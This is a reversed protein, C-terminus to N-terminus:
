TSGSAIRHRAIILLNAALVSSWVYAKFSTFGSWTCRTMGFCRKLFSIFSEIGARFHRLQKYVWASRVMDTVALGCRKTFAMDEVGLAKIAALNERSAFAGDAAAQRPAAGYLAIVREVMAVALTTDAPNGEQIVCDLVVGSRGVSLAVKHGYEPTASGKMIIDTHPEFISVIKETAPVSEGDFVRRRTQDVVREGHEIVESLRRAARRVQRMVDPSGQRRGLRLAIRRADILMEETTQVLIRYARVRDERRRAHRIELWRRKACRRHDTFTFGFRRAGRLERSLVRVVDWLLTSDAPPHINSLTTTCDVRIKEGREIKENKAVGVLARNMAELTGPSVRKINEQLTSRSVPADFAGFGCFARYCRSDALHFALEEYSFGNMQKIILARIVQDASLGPRGVQADRGTLLDRQVQELVDPIQDLLAGIEALERGHEHDILGQTLPPQHNIIRRM